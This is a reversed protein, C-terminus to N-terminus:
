AVQMYVMLGILPVMLMTIVILVKYVVLYISLKNGQHTEGDDGVWINSKTPDNSLLKKYETVEKDTMLRSGYINGDKDFSEVVYVSQKTAVVPDYGKDEQISQFYEAVDSDAIISLSSEGICTIEESYYEPIIQQSLL